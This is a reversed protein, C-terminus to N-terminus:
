KKRRNLNRYINTGLIENVIMEYHVYETDSVMDHDFKEKLLKKIEKENMM